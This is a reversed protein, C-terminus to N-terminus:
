ISRVSLFWAAAWGRKGDKSQVYLWQNQQGVKARAVNLDTEIVSLAQNRFAGTIRPSNISAQARINIDATPYVLLTKGDGAQEAPPQAPPQSDALRVAGGPLFGILGSMTRVNIWRNAQGLSARVLEPNGLVALRDTATLVAVPNAGAVPRSLLNVTALPYVMIGSSSVAQATTRVLWAALFGVQGNAAQVQIWENMRGLKARALNADGLVTLPETASFSGLLNFTTAPGSRLNVLEIPYVILDSPPFAQLNGTVLWAPINGVMGSATQVFLWQDQRGIWSRVTNADGLVNLAEGAPLVAVSKSQLSPEPRLEAQRSTYVTIGSFTPLGTPRTGQNAPIPPPQTEGPSQFYPMPDVIGAPYGSTKEGDIKLTFHLHSGFSNGTNDALGIREGAKIVQDEQVFTESLHAYITHFTKGGAKHRIRVHLGYPHDAPHGVQYITGDAAAYINAGTPAYFDIGEHGPLKFPRYTEPNEGFYQNVRFSDVPWRLKFAPLTSISFSLEEGFIEGTPLVPVKKQPKYNIVFFARAPVDNSQTIRIGQSPNSLDLLLRSEVTPHNPDYLFITMKKSFADLDYGIALVQHNQTPNDLGQVRILALVVPQGKDLSRRLKPIEYRAMRTGLDGNERLMWEIVKVLNSLPISDLQRGALYTYLRGPIKDVEKDPPVPVQAYFYDLASFCMGGCLGFMVENLDIEGAFPLKFKIPPKLRFSNIFNFGHKNPDFGTRITAM